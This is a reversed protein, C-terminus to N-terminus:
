RTRERVLSEPVIAGGQQTAALTGCAAGIDSGGSYRRVVPINRGGLESFFGDIEDKSPPFYGHEPDTVDILNVRARIDGIREALAVAHARSMNQGGIAVYALTARQRTASAYDAIAPMLTDLPWRKEIPMLQARQESFPSGISFVLRQPNGEETFQRIKPLVGATSITIKEAAIAPGAPDSLIRAAYMVNDYNLFPEGMGMFVVGRVPHSADRAVHHIQALIEWPQLNRIAGLRGTACFGCALACGVQSSVCVTYKSTPLPQLGSVEGRARAEKLQRADEPDPLPIRVTEVQHGDPLAFLYKVFGDASQRREIVKLDPFIAVAEVARRLENSLHRLGSLDTDGHRQIRSFISRAVSTRVGLSELASVMEAANLNRLLLPSATVPTPLLLLGDALRAVHQLGLFHELADSSFGTDPGHDVPEIVEHVTEGFGRGYACQM